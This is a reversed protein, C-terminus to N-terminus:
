SAEPEERLHFQQVPRFSYRHQLCPGLQELAKQHQATGYGKHHAFGYGPYEVEATEIMWTDRAVKALISAAAVSLSHADAYPYARQPLHQFDSLRIMDIILAEPAPDLQELARKMALRTAPVIGLKDIEWAEARGIGFAVAQQQIVPVLATRGRPTLQKSDRVKELATLLTPDPPLIVAGAHVPGAWCGRGVEDVGAVRLLDREWFELESELTPATRRSM